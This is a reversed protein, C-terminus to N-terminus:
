AYPIAFLDGQAVLWIVGRHDDVSLVNPPPGGARVPPLELEHQSCFDSDGRESSPKSVGLVLSCGNQGPGLLAAVVHHGTYGVQMTCEGPCVGPVITERVDPVLTKGEKQQQISEAGYWFRFSTGFTSGPPGMVDAVKVFSANPLMQSSVMVRRKWTQGTFKMPRLNGFRLVYSTDTRQEYPLMERPCCYVFARTYDDALMYLADNPGFSFELRRSVTYDIPIDTEIITSTKNSLNYALIETTKDRSRVAGVITPSVFPKECDSEASLTQRLLVSGTIANKDSTLELRAFLLMSTNFRPGGRLALGIIVSSDPLLHFSAARVYADLNLVTSQKDTACNFAKLTKSSHFLFLETGPFQLLCNSELVSTSRGGIRWRRVQGIIRPSPKSWNRDLKIVRSRSSSSSPPTSVM